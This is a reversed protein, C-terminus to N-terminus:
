LELDDVEKREFSFSSKVYGALYSFMHETGKRQAMGFEVDMGAETACEDGFGSGLTKSWRRWINCRLCASNVVVDLELVM